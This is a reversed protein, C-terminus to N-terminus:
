FKVRAGLMLNDSNPAFGVAPRISVGSYAPPPTDNSTAADLVAFFGIVVAFFGARAAWERSRKADDYAQQWNRFSQIEDLDIGQDVYSQANQRVDEEYAREAVDADGRSNNFELIFYGYAAMSAALGGILLSQRFRIGSRDDESISDDPVEAGVARWAPVAIQPSVRGKLGLEVTQIQASATCAFAILFLTM